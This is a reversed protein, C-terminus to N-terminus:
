QDLKAFYERLVDLIVGTLEGIDQVVMYNKFPFDEMYEKIKVKRVGDEEVFQTSRINMVSSKDDRRDLIIYLVMIGTEEAEVCLPRVLEKNCRGDSVIVMVRTSESSTFYKLGQSMMLPLGLDASHESSYTFDFNDLIRQGETPLFPRDFPLVEHMGNRIGCIAIKGVELRTLALALTILSELAFYGVNKESMSLTDDISLIIEYERQNPEARRLWIKDKRYNSAVYNIVKRMNLRKGTRYDGRLGSIKTPKFITRLEESLNYARSRVLPEIATWSANGASIHAQNDENVMMIYEAVQDMTLPHEHGLEREEEASKIRKVPNEGADGEEEDAKSSRGDNGGEESEEDKNGAHDEKEAEEEEKRKGLHTTEEEQVENRIEVKEEEGTTLGTKKERKEKVRVTEGEEARELGEGGEENDEGELIEREEQREATKEMQMMLDDKDEVASVKDEPKVKEKEEMEDQKKQGQLGSENQQSQPNENEENQDNDEPKGEGDLGAKEIEEGLKEKEEEKELEREEKDLPDNLVEEDLPGEEEEIGEQHDQVSMDEGEGDEEDLEKDENKEEDFDMDENENRSSMASRSEVEAYENETAEQEENKDEDDGKNDVEEEDVPKDAQEEYDEAKRQEKENPEKARQDTEEKQEGKYEKEEVDRREEEEQSEEDMEENDKDWLDQDIKDDEVDDFEDDKEQAEKDEDEKEGEEENEGEFDNEMSMAEGGSENRESGDEKDGDEGSDEEGDDKEGKDKEGLVQEEFEYQDTKNEDGKGEGVGTGFDYESSGEEEEKDEEKKVCLGEYILNNFIRHSLYSTKVCQSTILISHESIISLLIKLHSLMDLHSEESFSLHALSRQLKSLRSPFSRLFFQASLIFEDSKTKVDYIEIDSKVSRQFDSVASHLKAPTESLISESYLLLPRKLLGLQILHTNLTDLDQTGQNFKNMADLCSLQSEIKKSTFLNNERNLKAILSLRSHVISFRKRSDKNLRSIKGSNENILRRIEEIGKSLRTCYKVMMMSNNLMSIMYGQIRRRILPPVDSHYGLNSKNIYLIDVMEYIRKATKNATDKTEQSQYTESELMMHSLSFTKVPDWNDITTKEKIGMKLLQKMFGDLVRFRNSRSPNSKLSDLTFLWDNIFSESHSIAGEYNKYSYEKARQDFLPLWKQIPIIRSLRLNLSILNFGASGKDYKGVICDIVAKPLIKVPKEPPVIMSIGDKSLTSLTSELDKKNYSERKRKYVTGETSMELIEKHIKMSRAIGKHFKKANLKMNVLDKMHWNSLKENEKIPEAVTEFNTSYMELVTPVFSLHLRIIHEVLFVLKPRSPISHLIRCIWFLRFLLQTINSKALFIDVLDLINRKRQTEKETQDKESSGLEQILVSKFNICTDIDQLTIDLGQCFVLGRWSKREKKRYDYLADKIKECIDPFHYKKPTISEYDLLYGSLREILSCVENLKAKELPLSLIHDSVGIINNFAPLDQLEDVKRLVEVKELLTYLLLRLEKLEETCSGKYFSSSELDIFQRLQATWFREYSKLNLGQYPSELMITKRVDRDGNAKTLKSFNMRAIDCFNKLILSRPIETLDLLNEDICCILSFVSKKTLEPNKEGAGEGYRTRLFVESLVNKLYKLRMQKLNNQAVVIKYKPDEKIEDEIGFIRKMEFEVEERNREVTEMNYEDKVAKEIGKALNKMRSAEDFTKGKVLTEERDLKEKELTIYGEIKSMERYMPQYVETFVCASSLIDFDSSSKTTEANALSDRILNLSPFTAPHKRRYAFLIASAKGFFPILLDGFTILSGNKIFSQLLSETQVILHYIVIPETSSSITRCEKAIKKMEQVDSDGLFSSTKTLLRFIVRAVFYSISSDETQNQVPETEFQFRSLHRTKKSKLVVGLRQVSDGIESFSDRHSLLSFFKRDALTREREQSIKDETNIIAALYDVMNIFDNHNPNEAYRCIEDMVSVAKMHEALEGEEPGLPGETQDTEEKSGVMVSWEELRSELRELISIDCVKFQGLEMQGLGKALRKVKRENLDEVLRFLGKVDSPDVGFMGGVRGVIDEILDTKSSSFVKYIEDCQNIAEKVHIYNESFHSAIRGLLGGEQGAKEKFVEEIYGNKLIMSILSDLGEKSTIRLVLNSTPLLTDPDLISYTMFQSILQKVLNESASSIFSELSNLINTLQVESIEGITLGQLVTSSTEKFCDPTKYSSKTIFKLKLINQKSFLATIDTWISRSFSKLTRDAGTRDIISAFSTSTTALMNLILSGCLMHPSTFGGNTKITKLENSLQEFPSLTNNSIESSNKLHSILSTFFKSFYKNSPNLNSCIAIALKKQYIDESSRIFELGEEIEERTNDKLIQNSLEIWNKRVNELPIGVFKSKGANCISGMYNMFYTKFINEVNGELINKETFPQIHYNMISPHVSDENNEISLSFNFNRRYYVSKIIRNVIERVLHTMKAVSNPDWNEKVFGAIFKPYNRLCIDATQRVREIYVLQECEMYDQTNMNIQDFVMKVYSKIGKEIAGKPSSSITKGEFLSSGKQWNNGQPEEFDFNVEYSPLYIEVCRNRLARSPSTKGKGKDFLIFIRFKNHKQLVKVGEHDTAENVVVSDEELMGNLRELIAPNVVECGKLVVWHGLRMSKLLDSEIWTFLRQDQSPEKPRLISTISSSPQDYTGILDMLDSSSFLSITSILTKNTSALTELTSQISILSNLDTSDYIFLVPQSIEILIELSAVLPETLINSISTSSAANLYLPLDSKTQILNSLDRQYVNGNFSERFKERLLRKIDPDDIRDMIFLKCATQICEFEVDGSPAEESKNHNKREELLIVQMIKHLDRLNFEWVGHSRERLIDKVVFFYNVLGKLNDSEKIRPYVRLIIDELSQQDLEEIWVRTFRTIFSHPLGKRGSGMSVPNQSAFIRFRPDKKITADLEPIYISGRHDLISNLGELVTQTAMNLEDLLLWAGEKMAKVLVGDAWSFLSTTNSPIDSGLLDILDTQENLNVRYFKIGIKKALYQILSTKGVGPLGELMIAKELTLGMLVVKLNNKVVREHVSYKEDEYFLGKEFKKLYYRGIRVEDDNENFMDLEEEQMESHIPGFKLYIRDAIKICENIAYETIVKNLCKFGGILLYIYDHLISTSIKDYSDLNKLLFPITSKVDRITLPKLMSGYTHNFFCVVEHIFLVLLYRGRAEETEKEAINQKVEQLKVESMVFHIFDNKVGSLCGMDGSQRAAQIEEIQMELIKKSTVPEVWIETFRNRLAPTLEKKGFDGSPNMTAIVKFNPHAKIEQVSGDGKESIIITKEKELVSNLRELVSDQALSIEDILLVGGESMAQVLPGDLWEFLQDLREFKRQIEEFIKRIEERKEPSTLFAFEQRALDLLILKERSNVGLSAQRLREKGIESIGDVDELSRILQICDEMIKEKNRVPRLGGLFDSSETYQHCNVTYLKTGFITALLESITTKGSGTEGILLIPESQDLGMMVLSYIRVFSESWFVSNLVSSSINLRHVSNQFYQQYFVEPDFSTGDKITKEVLIKRVQDKESEYRLREALLCYGNMAMKDLEVVERSGWKLLDRITIMSEKGSFVNQRSRLIRLSKMIEVLKKSRSEPVKCRSEIIKVLDVDELDRIFFHFFRSRFAISLEKRGGYDLPNQTAFIRFDPHPKITENIEPIYLERNDDLLRNLAEMIESRALNLEDLIIWNGKRMAEVLLGEKFVLRGSQDPSYAGIYEDLDTHQHNNIRVVRNGSIEGLFKIMSTKGASTPGELLIPYNSHSAVRLLDTLNKKVSGTILFDTEHAAKSPSTGKKMLFGEVNVFGEKEVKKSSEECKSLFNAETQFVECVLKEFTLKSDPSLNSCLSAFLGEIVARGRSTVYYSQSTLSIDVARSLARLSITPKRGFGDTIKHSSALNRLKLYIETIGKYEIENFQHKSKNKIIEMIEVPDELEKVFYELFNKSIMPALEKKGISNGPNMCGFIKFESHRKLEKLDGKEILIISKNELIPLVSQLVDTQALNIEDLLIWDGERLARVLSGQVFKFILSSDIREKLQNITELRQYFKNCVRIVAGFNQIHTFGGTSNGLEEDEEQTDKSFVVGAQKAKETCTKIINSTERMMYALASIHKGNQILQHLYSVLKVNQDFDFHRRILEVFEQATESIYAKANLPKFGGILDSVDSSQSLNYVHLTKGLLRATEQVITTKGSGAEGVLLLNEGYRVTSLISEVIRGVTSTSFYERNLRANSEHRKFAGFRKTEIKKPSIILDHQYTNIYTSVEHSTLGFTNAISTLTDNPIQSRFKSLLVDFVIHVLMLKIHIAFHIPNDNKFNKIFIDNFRTALRDIDIVSGRMESKSDRTETNLINSLSRLISLILANSQLVPFKSLVNDFTIPLCRTEAIDYSTRLIDHLRNVTQSNQISYAAIIRFTDSIPIKEGKVKFNNKLIEIILDVLEEKAEQFNELILIGGKKVISSLLGEKWEFEGVKEGCIYNGLLSKTELHETIYIRVFKRKENHVYQEILSSKGSQPVGTVIIM